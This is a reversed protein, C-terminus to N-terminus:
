RRVRGRAALGDVLLAFAMLGLITISAGLPVTVMLWNLQRYRQLLFYNLPGIAVVFLTLLIHFATVPPLGVGPILLDWYGENASSLSLGFRNEWRYSSRPFSNILWNWSENPVDSFAGPFATVTGLHARRAAFHPRDPLVAFDLEAETMGMSNRANQVNINVAAFDERRPFCWADRYSTPGVIDNVEDATLMASPASSQDSVADAPVGDDRQGLAVRVEDAHSLWQSPIAAPAIRLTRDIAAAQQFSEGAHSVCLNGGLILWNRLVEFQDAHQEALEELEEREIMVLDVSALGLLKAPLDQPPLYEINSTLESLESWVLKTAPLTGNYNLPQGLLSIM